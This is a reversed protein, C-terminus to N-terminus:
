SHMTRGAKERTCGHKCWTASCGGEELVCALSGWAGEEGDRTHGLGLQRGRIYPNDLTSTSIQLNSFSPATRIENQWRTDQRFRFDRGEIELIITSGENHTRGLQMSHPLFSVSTFPPLHLASISPPLSPSFTCGHHLPPPPPPALHSFEVCQIFADKSTADVCIWVWHERCALLMPPVREVKGVRGEHLDAMTHM